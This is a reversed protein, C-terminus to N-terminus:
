LSLRNTGYLLFYRGYKAQSARKENPRTLTLRVLKCPM